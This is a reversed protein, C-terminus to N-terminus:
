KINIETLDVTYPDSFNVNELRANYAMHVPAQAVMLFPGDEYTAEQIKGLVDAREDPTAEMAEKYLAAIEPAMEATWGARLGVIGGPLFELQVNPDTYDTGWYMVTFALKGDRYDDGYGAAWAQNVINVKIGIKALDDKIEVALDELSIGEMDLDCVTLDIDFGDAYGAEKMLAKAAEVDTYDVSREGKCGLFGDQIISYPTITGEGCITQINAYNTALRIAQQVKADAVPGGIKPDENMMIFGVTKSAGNSLVIDDNGELEAMTDDTMNVAVDIDGSSLTMMQTNADDQIQIIYQDVNSAEGWYNPNKDLVIESDPTYSSMVYMGSGASTKDLYSQATDATAADKADTGGNEKVVESDVIACASYALKALIASDPGTLNFVVTKDDPTDISEISDTIFAPNGQLYKTRMISFAVDASTMPNGSAFVIGDKLVCTLQTNDDSFEYSDVLWPQAEDEGTVFKFLNEYTANLVMQPYKEYVQGPDMTDFGSGMAIVVTGSANAESSSGNDGGSGCGAFCFVMAAAMIVALIRKKM